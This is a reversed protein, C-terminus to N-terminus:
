HVLFNGPKNFQPNNKPPITSIRSDMQDNNDRRNQKRTNSVFSTEEEKRRLSQQKKMGMYRQEVKSRSKAEQGVM